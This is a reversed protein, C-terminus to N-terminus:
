SDAGLVRVFGDGFKIKLDGDASDVYIFATGAETSPATIGDNLALQGLYGSRFEEDASGLDITYGAPPEIKGVNSATEIFDLAVNDASGNGFLLTLKGAGSASMQGYGNGTATLFAIANSAIQTRINLDDDFFSIQANVGDLDVHQRLANGVRVHNKFAGVLFNKSPVGEFDKEYDLETTFDYDELLSTESALLSSFGLQTYDPMLDNM